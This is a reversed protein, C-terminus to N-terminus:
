VLAAGCATCERADSDYAEGCAPCAFAVEGEADMHSRILDRAAEYEWVPALIRVISLEGIDVSFIRDRQSYVQADIGEARLNDRLLQAEMETTTSYVQAWGQIIPVSAHEECVAVQRDGKRCHDCVAQGCLACRNEASTDPHQHCATATRLRGCAPCGEDDTSQHGCAGCTMTTADTANCRPCQAHEDAYEAECTSCFAM